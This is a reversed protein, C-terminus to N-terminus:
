REEMGFAMGRVIGCVGGVLLASQKPVTLNHLTLEFLMRM